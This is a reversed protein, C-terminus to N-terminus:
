TAVGENYEDLDHNRYQLEKHILIGLGGGPAGRHKWEAIYDPFKPIYKDTLWTECLCFIDPINSILLQKIESLKTNLSNCNLQYIMLNKQNTTNM